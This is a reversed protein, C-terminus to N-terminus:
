EVTFIPITNVDNMNYTEVIADIAKTDFASQNGLGIFIGLAISAGVLVPTLAHKLFKSLFSEKADDAHDLRYKTRQYFGPSAKIKPMEDLLEIMKDVSRMKENDM